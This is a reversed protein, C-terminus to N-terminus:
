GDISQIFDVGATVADNILADGLTVWLAAGTNANNKQTTTATRLVASNANGGALQVWATGGTFEYQIIARGVLRGGPNYVKYIVSVITQTGSSDYEIHASSIKCTWSQSINVSQSM